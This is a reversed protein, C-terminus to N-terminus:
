TPAYGTEAVARILASVLLNTGQVYGDQIAGADVNTPIVASVSLGFQALKSTLGDVTNTVPFSLSAELLRANGSGNNRTVVQFRPRFGIIASKADFTWIAPVRDGSSPTKAVYTVNAGTKDLVIIDAMTPM